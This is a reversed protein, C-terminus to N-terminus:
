KAFRRFSGNLLGHQSECAAVGFMSDRGRLTIELQRMKPIKLDLTGLRTELPARSVRQAADDKDNREYRASSIKSIM